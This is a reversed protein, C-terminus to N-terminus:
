GNFSMEFWMFVVVLLYVLEEEEAPDVIVFLSPSSMDKVSSCRSSTASKSFKINPLTVLVVVVVADLAFIFLLFSFLVM